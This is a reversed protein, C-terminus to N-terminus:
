ERKRTEDILELRGDVRGERKGKIEEKRERGKM